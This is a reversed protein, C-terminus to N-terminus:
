GKIKVTYRAVIKGERTPSSISVKTDVLEVEPHNAFFEQAKELGPKFEVIDPDITPMTYEIVEKVPWHPEGEPDNGKFYLTGDVSGFYQGQANKFTERGWFDEGQYVM